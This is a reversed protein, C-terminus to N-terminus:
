SDANPLLPLWDLTHGGLSVRGRAWFVPLTAKPVSHPFAFALGLGEMGLACLKIRDESWSYTKKSLYNRWLQEGITQCFVKAREHNRWGKDAQFAHPSVRSRLQRRVVDTDTTDQLSIPETLVRIKRAAVGVAIQINPLSQQHVYHRFMFEGFDCVVGFHMQASIKALVNPDNLKPVKQSRGDPRTGRLSDFIGRIETGSFLGDEVLRLVRPHMGLEVAEHIPLMRAASCKKQVLNSVTAWSKGWKDNNFGVVLDGGYFELGNSLADGLTALPLIDLLQLLHEGVARHNGLREFQGLWADIELPGVMGLAYQNLRQEVESRWDHKRQQLHRQLGTNRTLNAISPGSTVTYGANKLEESGCQIREPILIEQIDNDQCYGILAGAQDTPNKASDIPVIHIKRRERWDYPAFKNLAEVLDSENTAMVPILLRM